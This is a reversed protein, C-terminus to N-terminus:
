GFRVRIRKVAEPIGSLDIDWYCYNDEQGERVCEDIDIEPGNVDNPNHGGFYDWVESPTDIDAAKCANYIDLYKIYKDGKDAIGSIFVDTSM